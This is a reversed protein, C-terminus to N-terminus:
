PEPFRELVRTVQAATDAVWVQDALTLEAAEAIARAASRALDTASDAGAAAACHSINLSPTLPDNRIMALYRPAGPIFPSEGTTNLLWLSMNVGDGVGRPTEGAICSSVGGHDVSLAAALETVATATLNAGGGVPISAAGNGGAFMCPTMDRAPGTPDVELFLVCMVLVNVIVPLITQFFFGRRDRRAIIYRKRLMEWLDTFNKTRKVKRPSAHPHSSSPSAAAATSATRGRKRPAGSEVDSADAGGGNRDFLALEVEETRRHPDSLCAALFGSGGGGGSGSTSKRKSWEGGSEQEKEQEVPSGDGTSPAANTEESQGLTRYKADRGTANGGVGTAMSLCGVMAGGGTAGSDPKQGVALKAGGQVDANTEANTEEHDEEEERRRDEEALRLFVEELTTTSVGYGRLRLQPEIIQVVAAAAAAAAAAVDTNADAIDGSRCAELEAFLAPFDPGAAAPLEVTAEGGRARRLVAEPVHRRVLRMAAEAQSGTTSGNGDGSLPLTAGLQRGGALSSGGHGSEAAGGGSDGSNNSGDFTLTLSYKGGLTNKLFPPSGACRLKGGAIIAVRDCLLDAEELFHTTLVICRGKAAARILQWADRRSVPDLGSTPEDLLVVRSPGVLALAMQLRRKMGGSLAASRENAKAELGVERLKEVAASEVEGAAVGKIAAYIRLHEMCTLAPFLVNMQPCVGLTRRADALSHRLSHGMILADGSTPPTLGTLMAITTSKGAGNPGLLGTIQGEYLALHLPLVANVQHGSGSLFAGCSGTPNYTKCLGQIVVAPAVHHVSGGRHAMDATTAVPEVTAGGASAAAEAEAAAAALEGGGSHGPEADIGEEVDLMLRGRGLGMGVGAVCGWDGERGRTGDRMETGGSATAGRGDGAADAGRPGRWFKLSFIFWWPLPTGHATPLVRGLYWAAAAYVGADVLLLGMLEGLSFPDDYLTEWTVGQEAGERTALLDAAFTFATPALLSAARKMGLAQDEATQFFVYRPMVMAFLAFPGVISALRARSFFAAILFGLPIAAAMFCLLFAAFLTLDTTPFVVPQLIVAALIAVLAFIVAYTAAHAAALTWPQLGMISMLEQTRTEKEEVLGKILLGLPYLLSLCM